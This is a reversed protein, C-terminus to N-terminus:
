KMKKSNSAFVLNLYFTYTNIVKLEILKFYKINHYSLPEFGLLFSYKKIIYNNTIILFFYHTYMAFAHHSLHLTITWKFSDLEVRTESALVSILMVHILRMHMNVLNLKWNLYIRQNIHMAMQICTLFFFHNNFMNVNFSSQLDIDGLFKIMDGLFKM